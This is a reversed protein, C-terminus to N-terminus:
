DDLVALSWCWGALERAIATNALVPRKRRADFGAWREHLRRNGRQGRARAAPSAKDWRRRLDVGARYPQRHHWAAEILLRRAHGNGTKTIAGQSRSAGSSSETPVLGLYAGISRGTLRHWDGIEVALGFATLMSVGRLCGLRTVVPTYASDAAMRTIAADLRDRRGLAALMTDYATEYALQLGPEDFHQSRLWTDHVQTWAHGGYYVIGQRLLLKSVRHRAAMLDRRVDERARVLDRAAEQAVSPVTVSTIQDLHLLRALHRADRVDTKVRDGSPRQLKSPAAVLCEIGVTDLFRALGFGTPGAEYTAKVPDPLSRIWELIDRHDPTLRREFLEGTRGDLGCAVVSRAHVDLGVSTRQNM